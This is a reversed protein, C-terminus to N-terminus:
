GAMKIQYLYPCGSAAWKAQVGTLAGNYISQFTSEFLPVANCLDIQAQYAALAYPKREAADPYNATEQVAKDSEESVAMIGLGGYYGQSSFVQLMEELCGYSGGFPAPTLGATGDFIRTVWTNTDLTDVQTKIGVAELDYQISVAIDEYGATISIPLTEGSYSSQALYEKAKEPDYGGIDVSGAYDGMIAKAFLNEAIVPDTEGYYTAANERNIAYYVAKRLNADGVFPNGFMMVTMQNWGTTNTTGLTADSAALAYDSHTPTLFLDLEGTQLAILATASDMTPRVVLNQFTPAGLFYDPNATLYVYGTSEDKHDFVYAGTGVPKSAFATPDADYATPSVQYFYSCCFDIASSYATAKTMTITADDVKELASVYTAFNAGYEGNMLYTYNKLVADADFATGDTFKVGQRLHVTITLGDEEWSEALCPAPDGNEDYMFLTDMVQGVVMRDFDNATDPDYSESSTIASVVLTDKAPAASASESASASGSSGGSCAAASLAMLVAVAACLLKKMKDKM